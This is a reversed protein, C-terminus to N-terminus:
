NKAPTVQVKTAGRSSIEALTQGVWAPRGAVKTLKAFHSGFRAAQVQSGRVAHGVLTKGGHVYIGVHGDPPTGPRVKKPTIQLANRSM